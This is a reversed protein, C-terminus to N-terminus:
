ADYIDTYLESPDPYPSEIAFKKAERLRELVRGRVPSFDSSELWGEAICRKEFNVICDDAELRKRAVAGDRYPQKEGIFHATVRFTKCELFGCRNGEGNRARAALRSM